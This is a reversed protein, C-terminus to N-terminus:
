KNSVSIQGTNWVTIIRTIEKEDTQGNSIEIEVYPSNYAQPCNSDNGDPRYCFLADPNPRNFFIDLRGNNNAEKVKTGSSNLYYIASIKDNGNISLIEKCENTDTPTINCKKEENTDTFTYKKDLSVDAFIIFSKNSGSLPNGDSNKTVFSIGYGNKVAFSSDSRVGIAYSQAKRISLAIDNALNQTSIASRFSNHDFITIGTLITIIAMVVLLEILTMGKTNIKLNSKIKKCFNIM